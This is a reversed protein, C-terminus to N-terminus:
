GCRATSTARCSARTRTARTRRRLATMRDFADFAEPYEGLEIHADGLVGWTWADNARAKQCREAERIADRFRHQSLYVAALMRRADYDMPEDALVVKLAAEARMALGANGTVRTQRMLADALAVAAPADTRKKSLRATMM